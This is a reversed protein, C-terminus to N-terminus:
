GLIKWEEYLERVQCELQTHYHEPHRGPVFSYPRIEVGLENLASLWPAKKKSSWLTHPVVVAKLAGALPIPRGFVVEISCIRDDPENRGHSALLHLYARAHFEWAEAGVDPNVMSALDGDLYASLSAFVRAILKNPRRADRELLFDELNMQDMLVHKYLRKDFAGTDFAHIASADHILEPEFIFCYPCAGELKVVDDSNLRYAPRGYFFYALPENFIKCPETAIQETRIIDEAAVGTCIHTLPMLGWLPDSQNDVWERFGPRGGTLKAL